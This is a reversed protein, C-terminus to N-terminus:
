ETEEEGGDRILKEVTLAAALDNMVEEMQAEEEPMYHARGETNARATITKAKEVLERRWRDPPIVKESM